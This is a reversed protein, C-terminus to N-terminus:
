LVINVLRKPVIIIKSPTAGALMQVVKEDALALARMVLPPKMSGRLLSQPCSASAVVHQEPTAVTPLYAPRSWAEVPHHKTL